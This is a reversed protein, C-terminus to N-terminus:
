NRCLLGRSHSSFVKIQKSIDFAIRALRKKFADDGSPPTRALNKMSGCCDELQRLITMLRNKEGGVRDIKSGQRDTYEVIKEVILTIEDIQPRFDEVSDFKPNRIRTLLSQISEVIAQTQTDLYLRLEEEDKSSYVNRTSSRRSDM